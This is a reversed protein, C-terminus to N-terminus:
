NRDPDATQGKQEALRAARERDKRARIEKVANRFMDENQERNAHQMLDARVAALRRDESM